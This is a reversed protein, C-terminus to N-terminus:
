QSDWFQLQSCQHELYVYALSFASLLFNDFGTALLWPIINWRSYEASNNM